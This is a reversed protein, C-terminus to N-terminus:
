IGNVWESGTIRMKVFHETGRGDASGHGRKVRGRWGKAGGGKQGEKRRREAGRAEM